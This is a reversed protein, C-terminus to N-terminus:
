NLNLCYIATTDLPIGNKSVEGGISYIYSGYTAGSNREITKSIPLSPLTTSWNITLSDQGQTFPQVAGQDVTATDPGKGTTDGGMLIISNTANNYVVAQSALPDTNPSSTTPLSTAPGWDFSNNNDALAGTTTNQIAYSVETTGPNAGPNITEGGAVIIANNNTDVVPCTKYVGGTSPDIPPQVGAATFGQATFDGTTEDFQASYVAEQLETPTPGPPPDVTSGGIVYLYGNLVATGQLELGPAGAPVPVTFKSKSWSELSGFKSGLNPNIQAFHIETSPSSVGNNDVVGGITYVYTKGSSPSTYTTGCLYRWLGVAPGGTTASWLPQWTFGPTSTTGLSGDLNVQIYGVSTQPTGGNGLNGSCTYSPPTGSNCDLGGIVYLFTTNNVTAVVTAFTEIPNQLQVSSQTWQGAPSSTCTQAVALGDPFVLLLTLLLTLSMRAASPTSSRDISHSM